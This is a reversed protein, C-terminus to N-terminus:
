IKEFNEKVKKDLNFLEKAIEDARKINNYLETLIEISKLEEFSNSINILRDIPRLIEHYLHLQNKHLEEIKEQIGKIINEQERILEPFTGVQEAKSKLFSVIDEEQILEALDAAKLFSKKAKKYFRDKLLENALKIEESLKSPIDEGLDILERAEQLKGNDLMIKTKENITEKILAPEKLKEMLSFISNFEDKLLKEMDGREKTYGKIIKVGLTEFISKLSVLDEGQKFVFGLFLNEKQIAESKLKTSYYRLDNKRFLTYSFEKQIHKDEFDRLIEQKVKHNQDLYYEALVNPGFSEDIEYLFIGIPM